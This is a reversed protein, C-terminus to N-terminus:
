RLLRVRGADKMQEVFNQYAERTDWRTRAHCIGCHAQPSELRRFCEPCIECFVFHREPPDYPSRCAPCVNQTDTLCRQHFVSKCAACWTGEGELMINQRCTACQVGALQM